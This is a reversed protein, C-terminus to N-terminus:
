QRRQSREIPFLEPINELQWAESAKRFVFTFRGERDAFSVAMSVIGAVSQGGEISDYAPLVGNWTLSQLSGSQQMSEWRAKFQNLSVRQRFPTTFMEYAANYDKAKLRQTLQDAIAQMQRADGRASVRSTVEKAVVFGGFLLCLVLGAVHVPLDFLRFFRFGHLNILYIPLNGTETGNSNRIQQWAVLAIIVGALPCILFLPSLIALGSALGLIVALVAANNVAVYQQSAVGATTSMKHLKALPDDGASPAAAASASVENQTTAM